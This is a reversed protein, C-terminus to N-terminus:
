AQEKNALLKGIKDFANDFNKAFGPIIKQREKLSAALEIVQLKAEALRMEVEERLQVESMAALRQEDVKKGVETIEDRLKTTEYLQANLELDHKKQQEMHEMMTKFKAERAAEIATAKKQVQELAELMDKEMRTGVSKIRALQATGVIANAFTAKRCENLVRIWDDADAKDEVKLLLSSNQIGPHVVEFVFHTGEKGMPFVSAGGLPLVGKPKWNFAQQAPKVDYWFLFSDKLVFYRKQWAGVKSDSLPKKYMWGERQVQLYGSPTDGASGGLGFFKEAKKGFEADSGFTGGGTSAPASSSM